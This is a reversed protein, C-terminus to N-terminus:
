IIPNDVFGLKVVVEIATEFSLFLPIFDFVIEVSEHIPVCVILYASLAYVGKGICVTILM